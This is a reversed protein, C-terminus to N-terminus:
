NKLCADASFRGGGMLMLSLVILTYLIALQPDRGSLVNQLIAVGLVVVLLASNIRTLCGAAVFISSKFQVTTAVPSSAIPVPFHM